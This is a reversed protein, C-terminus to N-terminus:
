SIIVGAIIYWEKETENLVWNIMIIIQLHIM